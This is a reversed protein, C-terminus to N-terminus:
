RLNSRRHRRLQREDSHNSECTKCTENGAGHRHRSALVNRDAGLGVRLPGVNRAFEHRPVKAMTELIRPEFKAFGTENAISAATRESEDVMLRREVAFDDATLSGATLALLALATFIIRNM